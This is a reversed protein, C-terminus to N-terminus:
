KENENVNVEGNRCDCSRFGLGITWPMWNWFM